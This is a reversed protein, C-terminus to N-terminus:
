QKNPAVVVREKQMWESIEKSITKHYPSIYSNIIDKFRYFVSVKNDKIYYVVQPDTAALSDTAAMFITSIGGNNLQTKYVSKLKISEFDEGTKFAIAQEIQANYEGLIKPTILDDSNSTYLGNISDNLTYLDCLSSEIYMSDKNIFNFVVNCDTNKDQYVYKNLAQLELNGTIFIRSTKRILGELVFSLPATSSSQSIKIEIKDDGHDQIKWLNQFNNQASCLSVGFCLATSLFVFKMSINKQLNFSKPLIIINRTLFFM